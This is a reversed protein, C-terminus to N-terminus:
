AKNWVLVTIFVFILTKAITKDLTLFVASLIALIWLIIPFYPAKSYINKEDKTLSALFLGLPIALFFLLLEILM